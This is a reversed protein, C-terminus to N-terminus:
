DWESHIKLTKNLMTEIEDYKDNFYEQAEDHYEGDNWIDEINFSQEVMMHAIDSIFEMYDSNNVHIKTMKIKTLM